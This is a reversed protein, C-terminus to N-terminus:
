FGASKRRGRASRSVESSGDDVMALLLAVRDGSGYGDGRRRGDDDLAEVKRLRCRNVKFRISEISLAPSSLSSVGGRSARGDCDVVPRLLVIVMSRGGPTVLQEVEGMALLQEM